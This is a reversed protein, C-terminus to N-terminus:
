IHILSLVQIAREPQAVTRREAQAFFRIGDDDDDGLFGADNGNTM